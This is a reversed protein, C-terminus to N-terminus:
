IGQKNPVSDDAPPSLPPMYNQPIGPASLIVSLIGMDTVVDMTEPDIVKGNGALMYDKGGYSVIGANNKMSYVPPESTDGSKTSKMASATQYGGARALMTLSHHGQIQQKEASTVPGSSDEYKALHAYRNRQVTFDDIAFQIRAKMQQPTDYEEGLRALQQIIDQNSLRGSPDAARAMQFALSIRLSEFRAYMIGMEEATMRTGDEKLLRDKEAVAMGDKRRQEISANLSQIYETTMYKKNDDTLSQGTLSDFGLEAARRESVVQTDPAVSTIAGRSVADGEDDSDFFFGLVNKARSVLGAYKSVVPLTTFQDAMDRLAILGSKDSLVADLAKNADIIKVFDEETATSAILVRAAHLKATVVPKASKGGTGPIGGARSRAQTEFQQPKQYAGLIFSMEVHDGGTLEDLDKLMANATDKNMNAFTTSATPGFLNYKAGFNITADFLKERDEKNYGVLIDTYGVWADAFTDKTAGFNNMVATQAMAHEETKPKMIVLGMINGDKEPDSSPTASEVDENVIVYESGFTSSRNKDPYMANFLKDFTQTARLIGNIQPLEVDFEGTKFYNDKQIVGANSRILQEFEIHVDKPANRFKDPDKQIEAVLTTINGMAENANSVSKRVDTYFDYRHKGKGIFSVVKPDDSTDDITQLMPIVGSLDTNIRPGARGFIDIRERSDIQDQMDKVAASLIKANAASFNKGQTLGANMILKNLEDVSQQEGMRLQAEQKINRTFGAVTGLALAALM